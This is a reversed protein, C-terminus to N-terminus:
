GHCYVGVEFSNWLHAEIQLTHVATCRRGTLRRADAAM